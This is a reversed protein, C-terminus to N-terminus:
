QKGVYKNYCDQAEKETDFQALAVIHLGGKCEKNKKGYAIWKGSKKIKSVGEIRHERSKATNKIELGM